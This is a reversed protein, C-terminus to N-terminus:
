LMGPATEAGWVVGWSSMCVLGTLWSAANSAPAHSAGRGESSRAVVCEEAGEEDRIRKTKKLRHFRFWGGKPKKKKHKKGGFKRPKRGLITEEVGIEEQDMQM